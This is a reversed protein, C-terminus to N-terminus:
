LKKIFIQSKSVELVKNENKIEDMFKNISYCPNERINEYFNWIYDDCILLGNKKLIKWANRCDKLVQFDKHYGDIYIVEFLTNNKKFFDDSNNKFKLINNFSSTNYDFNKEVIDFNQDGYEETKNWNDVCYVKSKPFTNAIFMASNGEYTGIELYNFNGELFNLYKFFNYSHMSFYDNTIRKNKLFIQNRKKFSKIKKKIFINFFKQILFTMIINIKSKNKILFIIKKM